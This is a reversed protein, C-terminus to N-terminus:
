YREDTSRCEKWHDVCSQFNFFVIEATITMSEPEVFEWSNYAFYIHTCKKGQASDIGKILKEFPDNALM